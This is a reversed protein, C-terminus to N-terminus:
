QLRTRRSLRVFVVIGLIATGLIGTLMSAAPGALRNMVLSPVLIAAAVLYANTASRAGDHKARYRWDSVVMLVIVIGFFLEAPM